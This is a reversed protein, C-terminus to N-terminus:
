SLRKTRRIVIPDEEITQIVCDGFEHIKVQNEKEEEEREEEEEEEEWEQYMPLYPVEREDPPSRSEPM